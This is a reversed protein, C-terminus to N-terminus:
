KGFGLRACKIAVRRQLREDFVGGASVGEQKEEARTFREAILEGPQFLNDIAGSQVAFAVSPVRAPQDLFAGACDYEMVLRAM